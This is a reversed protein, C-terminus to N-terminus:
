ERISNDLQINLQVVKTNINLYEYTATAKRVLRKDCSILVDCLSAYATHVCDSTSASFKKYKHMAADSHYGIYNLANYIISCRELISLERNFTSIYFDLDFFIDKQGNKKRIIDRISEVTNINPINNLSTPGVQFFNRFYNLDNMGEHNDLIKASDLVTKSHTDRYLNLIENVQEKSTSTLSEIEKEVNTLLSEFNKIQNKAIETNSKDPYGGMFKRSPELLSQLPNGYITAQREYVNYIEFPCRETLHAQHDISQFNSDLVPQVHLANLQELIGLYINPNNSRKIEELTENSYVLAYESILWEQFEKIGHRKIADIVNQDLYALPKGEYPPPSHSM